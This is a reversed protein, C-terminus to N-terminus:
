SDQWKPSRKELFAEIGEVADNTSMLTDLYLREV